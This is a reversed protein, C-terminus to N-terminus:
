LHGGGTGIGLQTFMEYCSLNQRHPTTLTEGLEWNQPGGRAPTRSQKNLINAAVRWIPPREEM